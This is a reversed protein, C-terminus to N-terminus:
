FGFSRLIKTVKKATRGAISTDAFKVQYFKITAFHSFFPRFCQDLQLSEVQVSFYAIPTERSNYSM